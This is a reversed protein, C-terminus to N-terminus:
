SFLGSLAHAAGLALAMYGLMYLLRDWQRRRRQLFEAQTEIRILAADGLAPDLFLREHKLGLSEAAAVAEEVGARYLGTDVDVLRRKLLAHVHMLAADGDNYRAVYRIRGPAEGPGDPVIPPREALAIRVLGPRDGHTEVFLYGYHM